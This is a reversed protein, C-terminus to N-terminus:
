NETDEHVDDVLGGDVQGALALIVKDVGHVDGGHHDKGGDVERDRVAQGASGIDLRYLYPEEEIEGIREQHDNDINQELHSLLCKM